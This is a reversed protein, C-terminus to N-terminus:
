SANVTVPSALRLEGSLVIDGSAAMRRVLHLVDNASQQIREAGLGAYEKLLPRLTRSRAKPLRQLFGERTDPRCALLARALLDDPLQDQVKKWDESTLGLLDDMTFMQDQLTTALGQDRHYIDQM